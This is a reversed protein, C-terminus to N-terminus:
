ISSTLELKPGSLHFREVARKTIACRSDFMPGIVVRRPLVAGVNFAFTDWTAKNASLVTTNTRLGVIKRSVITQPKVWSISSNRFVMIVPGAVKLQM